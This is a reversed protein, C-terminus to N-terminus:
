RSPLYRSKSKSERKKRKKALEKEVAADGGRERLADFKAELEMRRLESRKVHYAGRKGDAIEERIRRKVTKKASRATQTRKRDAREQKLKTLAAEDDELTGADSGTLGLKRRMKQGAKGTAKRAKIRKTLAVMEEARMDELFAYRKEFLEDDYHGSMAELRPDRAKYRNAGVEVGIGSSNLHPAGRRYYDSRSSSAETPAHKSKKKKKTINKSSTDSTVKSHKANDDDSGDSDSSMKARKRRKEKRFAALRESALSLAAEKKGAKKRRLGSVASNGFTAEGTRRNELRSQLDATDDAADPEDGESVSSSSSDDDDSSSYPLSSSDDDSDDQQQDDHQMMHRNRRPPAASADQREHHDSGAASSGSDSDTDSAPEM